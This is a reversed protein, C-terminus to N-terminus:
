VRAENHETYVGNPKPIPADDAPSGGEALDASEATPDRPWLLFGGIVLLLVLPLNRGLLKAIGFASSPGMPSALLASLLALPAQMAVEKAVAPTDEAEAQTEAVEEEQEKVTVVLAAVMGFLTVADLVRVADRAPIDAHKGIHAGIAIFVADFRGTDREALVDTLERRCAM